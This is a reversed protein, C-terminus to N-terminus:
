LQRYRQDHFLLTYHKLLGTCSLVLALGLYVFIPTPPVFLTPNYFSHWARIIPHHPQYFGGPSWACALGSAVPLLLALCRRLDRLCSLFSLWAAGSCGSILCGFVQVSLQRFISQNPHCKM